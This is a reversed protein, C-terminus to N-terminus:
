CCFTYVYFLCSMLMIYMFIIKYRRCKMDYTVRYLLVVLWGFRVRHIFIPVEMVLIRAKLADGNNPDVLFDSM